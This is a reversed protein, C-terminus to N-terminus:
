DFITTKIFDEINLLNKIPAFQDQLWFGKIQTLQEADQAAKEIIENDTALDGIKFDVTGSQNKGFFDGAGRIKLDAESIKFGDNTQAMISLRKKATEGDSDSLLFCYAQDSSRGVRGRLQHLQSLGFRNADMILMVTASPVNVGVEIVTTSVLVKTRGQKFETMVEDKESSTMKGHMLGVEFFGQYYKKIEEYIETANRLDMEESEEILPCVVYMQKQNNLEKVGAWKLTKLLDATKGVRTIIEKRGAPMEDIVSLDLQGFQTIALTRPIPTATM